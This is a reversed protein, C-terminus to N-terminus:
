IKWEDDFDIINLTVADEDKEKKSEEIDIAYVLYMICERALEVLRVCQEILTQESIHYFNDDAIELKYNNPHEHIKVYKHELANRLTYLDRESAVESPWFDKVFESYSWYLATLAINTQPLKNSLFIHRADAQRETFGMNWFDNVFFAVKDFVSFLLRFASKLQELRISYNVYDYDSLSLKVDKDAFHLEKINESGEYCLYRAYIFEEKLQNLMAFWRPPNVGQDSSLEDKEVNETYRTITLPDHAFASEYEIVDNLPTLFLHNELCWKRYSTEESEGLDYQKFVISASLIDSPTLSEYENVLGEFFRKAYLHMNPDITELAKKLARYAFCHLEKYHGSDNVINAYFNLARGYNGIAMGFNDSLCIAKRYIRLAEIVRGCADLSNAYNTYILHFLTKTDDTHDLLSIAKRFYYLSKRRYEVYAIDSNDTENKSADNALESYGTGLYYFVVAYESTSHTQGYIEVSEIYTALEDYKEEDLLRDIEKGYKECEPPINLNGMIGRYDSV